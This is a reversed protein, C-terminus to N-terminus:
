TALKRYLNIGVDEVTYQRVEEFGYKEAYKTLEGESYKKSRFVMTHGSEAEVWNGDDDFKWTEGKSLVKLGPIRILLIKEIM